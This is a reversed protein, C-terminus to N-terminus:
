MKEEGTWRSDVRVESGRIAPQVSSRLSRLSVMASCYLSVILALLFVLPQTLLVLTHVETVQPGFTKM